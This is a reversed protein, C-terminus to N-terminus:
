HISVGAGGAGELTFTGEITATGCGVPNSKLSGKLHIVDSTAAYTFPVATGSYHCTLEPLTAEFTLSATGKGLETTKLNLLTPDDITIPTTGKYFCTTTEAPVGELGKGEVLTAENKTVEGFVEVTACTLNGISTKTITNTSVGNIADGPKAKAGGITLELASAFAPVTLAVVAVAALLLSLKKAM